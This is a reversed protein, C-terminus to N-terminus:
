AVTLSETRIRADPIKLRTSEGAAEVIERYTEQGM